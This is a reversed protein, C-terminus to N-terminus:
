PVLYTTIAEAYVPALPDALQALCDGYFGRTGADRKCASAAPISFHCPGANQLGCSSGVGCIRQQLYDFSRVATEDTDDGILARGSCAHLPRDLLSTADLEFVNGYFAAEQLTFEAEIEEDWTLGPHDGRLSVTVSVGYANAHALLCASLWRQCSGECPATVWGPALGFLGPLQHTEGAIEVELASGEDLACLALYEIHELGAPHAALDALAAGDAIAVAGDWRGIPAPELLALAGPSLALGNNSLKGEAAGPSSGGGGPAEGDVPGPRGTIEVTCAGLAAAALSIATLRAALRAAALCPLSM